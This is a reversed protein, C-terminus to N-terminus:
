GIAKRRRSGVGLAALGAGLLLLTAPEPVARFQSLQTSTVANLTLTYTGAELSTINIGFETLGAATSHTAITGNTSTGVNINLDQTDFTEVCAGFGLTNTCDNAATGQPTWNM